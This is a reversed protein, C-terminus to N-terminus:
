SRNFFKNKKILSEKESEEKLKLLLNSIEGVGVATGKIMNQTREITGTSKLKAYDNLAQSVMVSLKKNDKEPRKAEIIVDDLGVITTQVSQYSADINSLSSDLFKLPMQLQDIIKNIKENLTVVAPSGKGSKLRGMKSLLIIFATVLILAYIGILSRLKDISAKFSNLKGQMAYRVSNIAAATDVQTTKTLYVRTPEMHKIVHKVHILYQYIEVGFENEYEYRKTIAEIDPLQNNLITLNKPSPMRIYHILNANFTNVFNSDNDAGIKNLERAILSGILPSFNASNLLASNSTKFSEVLDLKLNHLREYELFQNKVDDLQPTIMGFAKLLRTKTESLNRVNSVIKDYNNDLGYGLQMLSINLDRDTRDIQEISETVRKILPGNLLSYKKYFLYGFAIGILLLLLFLAIYKKM